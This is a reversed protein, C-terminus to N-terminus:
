GAPEVHVVVERAEIERVVREEVEDAIAHSAQVDLVALTTYVDSRTHAADALFIDSGLERGRRAEYRSVLVGVLASAGMIALASPPRWEEDPEQGAVRAIWPAFLDNTADLSSHVAEAVVSLANASVSAVLKEGVVLLNLLLVRFLM